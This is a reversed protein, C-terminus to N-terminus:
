ALQDEASSSSMLNKWTPNDKLFQVTNSNEFYGDQFNEYFDKLDDLNDIDNLEQLLYVQKTNLKQLTQGLVKDSSWSIDKFVEPYFSNKHFAILYYGGDKSPGLVIDNLELQDFAEQIIKNTIHPIDSGILVIKEYGEAFKEKFAFRMKIGLDGDVQKFNGFNGFTKNILKLDPYGCLKFDSKGSQLTYILDEVFLLYLGLAFRDGCKVALRTKVFGLKPEKVFLLVLNKNM